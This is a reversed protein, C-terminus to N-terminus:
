ENVVSHVNLNRAMNVYFDPSLGSVTLYRKGNAGTSAVTSDANHQSFCKNNKTQGGTCSM